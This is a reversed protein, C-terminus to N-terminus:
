TTLKEKQAKTELISKDSASKPRKQKRESVEDKSVVFFPLINKFLLSDNQMKIILLFLGCVVNCNLVLIRITSISFFCVQLQFFIQM